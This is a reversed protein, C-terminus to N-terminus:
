AATVPVQRRTENARVALSLTRTVAMAIAMIVPTDTLAAGTV